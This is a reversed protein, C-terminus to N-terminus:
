AHKAPQWSNTRTTHNEVNATWERKNLEREREREGERGGGREKMRDRGM